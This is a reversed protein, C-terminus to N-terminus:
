ITAEEYIRSGDRWYEVRGDPRIIAPLSGDRHTFGHRCWVQTGDSYVRAPGDERHWEGDIAWCTHEVSDRFYAEYAPGIANHCNAASNVVKVVAYLPNLCRLVCEIYSAGTKRASDATLIARDAEFRDINLGYKRAFNEIIQKHQTTMKTERRICAVSLTM